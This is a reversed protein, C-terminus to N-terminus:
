ANIIFALYKIQGKNYRNQQYFLNFNKWKLWAMYYPQLM